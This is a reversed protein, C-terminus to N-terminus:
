SNLNILNCAEAYEKHFPLNISDLMDPFTLAWSVYYYALMHYGSFSKGPVNILSYGDKSPSIGNRGLMAIELAIVKVDEPPRSAFHKLADVMYHMVAVNLPQNSHKQKFTANLEAKSAEPITKSTSPDSLFSFKKKSLLYASEDVLEFYDHLDLKKAWSYVLDYESGPTGEKNVSIFEEYMERALYIENSTANFSAVLNIGYLEAFQFAGLLNYTRSYSILDKPMLAAVNKDTVATIGDSVIRRLSLYQYPRVESLYNYIHSEIFLDLPANYVQSMMGKFLAVADAQARSEPFGRQKYKYFFGSLNAVFRHESEPSMIFVKNNNAERAELILQLHMLEHVLLHESGLMNSDTGFPKHRVLHYPRDYLEAVELIAPTALQSSEAMRIEKSSSSELEEAFTQIFHLGADTKAIRIAMADLSRASQKALMDNKPNKIVANRYQRFAENLDGEREAIIGLAHMTNPYNPDIRWARELYEKAKAYEGRSLFIGGINNITINDTPNLNLVEEYFIMATALDHKHSFHINGLLLLAAPNTRNWRLSDLLCSLAEEPKGTEFLIHGKLRYYEANTPDSLLLKELMKLASPFKGAECLSVAKDYDKVESHLRPIDIDIYVTDDKISIKPKFNHFSYYHELEKILAAHDNFNIKPFLQHLIDDIKHVLLM